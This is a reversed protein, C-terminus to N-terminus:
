NKVIRLDLTANYLSIVNLFILSEIINNYSPNLYLFHITM